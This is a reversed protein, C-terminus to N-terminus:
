SGALGQAIAIVPPFRSLLSISGHLGVIALVGCWLAPHVAGRVKVDHRMAIGLVGIQFAGTMWEMLEGGLLPAPLIRGFAPEMILVIAALMLRRHWETRRRLRIALAFLTGFLVVQVQTLALFFPPAFFPPQRHLAIAMIGTFSGLAVMAVALAAGLWGLKRHLDMSGREALLNQVVFLLVWSVFVLGHLHVWLPAAGVDVFGRVAFQAFGFLIFGAIGVAMRRYFAQDARYSGPALGTGISDFTTAM